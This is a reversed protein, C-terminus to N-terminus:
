GGAPKCCSTDGWTPRIKEGEVIGVRGRDTRDDHGEALMRLKVGAFGVPEEVDICGGETALTETPVLDSCAQDRYFSFEM